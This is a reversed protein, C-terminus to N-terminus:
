QIVSTYRHKRTHHRIMWIISNKGSTDYGEELLIRLVYDNCIPYKLQSSSIIKQSLLEIVIQEVREFLKIQQNM